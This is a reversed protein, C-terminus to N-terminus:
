ILGWRLDHYFNGFTSALLAPSAQPPEKMRLSFHQTEQLMPMNHTYSSNVNTHSSTPINKSRAHVKARYKITTGPRTADCLPHRKRTSRRKKVGHVQLVSPLHAPPIFIVLKMQVSALYGVLRLRLGVGPCTERDTQTPPGLKSATNM